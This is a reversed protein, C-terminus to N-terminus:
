MEKPLEIGEEILGEIAIGMWDPTAVEAIGEAAPATDTEATAAIADDTLPWHDVTHSWATALQEAAAASTEAVPVEPNAGSKGNLSYLVSAVIAVCAALGISIRWLLGSRSVTRNAAAQPSVVPEFAAAVAGTLEVQRAVAECVRPDTGLVSEFEAREAESLEGAIYLFAQWDLQRINDHNM